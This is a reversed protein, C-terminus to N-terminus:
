IVKDKRTSFLVYFLDCISLRILNPRNIATEIMKGAMSVDVEDLAWNILM